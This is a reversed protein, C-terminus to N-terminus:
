PLVTADPVAPDGGQHGGCEGAGEDEVELNWVDYAVRRDVRQSHSREDTDPKAYPVDRAAIDKPMPTHHLEGVTHVERAAHSREILGDPGEEVYRQAWKYGTKRSVGYLACLDSVSHVGARWDRIFQIRQEMATTESWSM